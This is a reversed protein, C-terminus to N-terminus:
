IGCANALVATMSRDLGFVKGLWLVMLVSLIVFGAILFVAMSGLKVIAQVTYLSGLMIIGTKIFLRSLKFGDSFVDPLKGGFVVNRYLMGAIIGLLIYNLHFVNVLWGKQGMIVTSAM